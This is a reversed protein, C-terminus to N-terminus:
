PRGGRIVRLRPLRPGRYSGRGEGKAQAGTMGQFPLQGRPPMPPPVPADLAAGVLEGITWIHDTVGLAMVPSCRLAEHSRCLNYWSMHLAIAARHNEIKRSFANTLRTFRRMQMRTTLNFREVYSTSIKEEDPRGCIVVKEAGIVRGPSYRTAADNGPTTAYVKVLQAFDVDLDFADRIANVYPVYGDATIQPRNVIRARLDRALALTEVGTRKGVVYSLVAKKTADLAVFVWVDGYAEPDTSLVRKQKKGLFAWQEDLEVLGVNLDRMMADHLRACGEGVRVGLNMITERNVDTLRETARISCGETLAAIVQVQKDRSLVNMPGKDKEPRTGM